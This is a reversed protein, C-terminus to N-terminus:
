AVDVRRMAKKLMNMSSSHPISPMHTRVMSVRAMVIPATTRESSM